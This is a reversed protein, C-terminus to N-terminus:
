AEQGRLLAVDRALEVASIAHNRLDRTVVLWAHCGAAHYWLERHPGSPNDRIYVYDTWEPTPAAGGDTPRTVKADGYYSYEELGREGCYPCTMRM